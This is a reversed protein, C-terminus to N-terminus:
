HLDPTPADEGSRTLHHGSDDSARAEDYDENENDNDDDGRPWFAWTVVAAAVIAIAGLAEPRSITVIAQGWGARSWIVERVESVHYPLPDPAFNADGRMEIVRGAPPNQPDPDNRIVRHTIPLGHDRDITVVHGIEAEAAPIERVLAMSGAPIEPSMSGTKFLMISIGFWWAALAAVACIVGFIALLTLLLEAAWHRVRGVTSRRQQSGPKIRSHKGM